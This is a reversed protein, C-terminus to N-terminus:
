ICLLGLKSTRSLVWCDIKDSVTRVCFVRGSLERTKRVVIIIPIFLHGALTQTLLLPIPM